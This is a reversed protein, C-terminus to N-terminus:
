TKILFIFVVRSILCRKLLGVHPEILPYNSFIYSQHIFTQQHTVLLSNQNQHVQFTRFLVLFSLFWESIYVRHDFLCFRALILLSEYMQLQGSAVTCIYFIQNSYFSCSRMYISFPFAQSSQLEKKLNSVVENFPCILFDHM